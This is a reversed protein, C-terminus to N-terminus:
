HKQPTLDRIENVPPWKKPVKERYAMPLVYHPCTPAVYWKCLTKTEVIWSVQSLKKNGSSKLSSGIQCVHKFQSSIVLFLTNYVLYICICMCIHLCVRYTSGRSNCMDMGKRGWFFPRCWPRIIDVFNPMASSTSLHPLDVIAAQNFDEM